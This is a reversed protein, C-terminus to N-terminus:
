WNELTLSPYATHGMGVRAWRVCRGQPDSGDRVERWAADRWVYCRVRAEVTPRANYDWKLAWEERLIVGYENSEQPQGRKWDLAVVGGAQEYKRRAM